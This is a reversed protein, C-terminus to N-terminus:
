ATNGNWVEGITLILRPKQIEVSNVRWNAGNWNVYRVKSFNEYAYADAMVSIANALTVDDNLTALNSEMRGLNRIVDGTYSIETMVEEWVGPSTEVSRDAYGVAGHFRV